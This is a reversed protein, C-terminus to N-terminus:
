ELLGTLAEGRPEACGNVAHGITEKFLDVRALLLPKMAIKRARPRAACGSLRRCAVQRTRKRVHLKTVRVDQTLPTNAGRFRRVRHPRYAEDLPMRECVGLCSLLSM